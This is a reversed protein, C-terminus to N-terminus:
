WITWQWAGSGWRGADYGVRAGLASWPPDDPFTQVTRVPPYSVVSGPGHQRDHRADGLPDDRPVDAGVQHEAIADAGTISVAASGFAELVQEVVATYSTFVVVKEDAEVRDRVAEVTSPVKAVAM